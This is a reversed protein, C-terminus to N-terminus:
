RRSSTWSRISTPRLIRSGAQACRSGPSTTPHPSQHFTVQLKSIKDANKTRGTDTANMDKRTAAMIVDVRDARAAGSLEGWDLASVGGQSPEVDRLHLEVAPMWEARLTAAAKHM